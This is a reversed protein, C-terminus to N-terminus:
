MAAGVTYFAAPSSQNNYETTIWGLSRNIGTTVRLENISGNFNSGIVSPSTGQYMYGASSNVNTLASGDIYCAWQGYGLGSCTLYYWTNNTLGVYDGSWDDGGSDSIHINNPGYAGIKILPTHPGVGFSYLTTETTVDVKKFWASVTWYYSSPDPAFAISTSAAASYSTAANIQGTINSTGYNTGNNANSTSDLTTSAGGQSVHWVGAYNSDWVGIANQQSSTTSANDYCLYITTSSTLTPIRVWDVITGNSSSYAEQEFTLKSVCGSDSTFIIDYGNANQVNGGSSSAALYSYTNSFLMPFNSLTGSVDSATVMISRVYTYGNHGFGGSGGGSSANAYDLPALALNSGVEFLDTYLGGDSAAASAYKTSELPTAVEYTSGSNFYSYYNGTSSNNLPDVPLSVIPSGIQLGSFNIPVWGTGNTAKYTSSDSCQYAWGSPLSLPAQAQCQDGLSSTATADPLSVYSTSSNGFSAGGNAAYFSIANKLTSMDSLRTADRSERLLEAPNLVLIVVVSVVAIIAIVILLEVLTFASRPSFLM